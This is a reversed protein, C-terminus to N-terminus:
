SVVQDVVHTEVDAARVRHGDFGREANHGFVLQLHGDQQSLEVGPPAVLRELM